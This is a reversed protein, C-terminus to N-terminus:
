RSLLDAMSHRSLEEELVAQVRSLEGHISCAGAHSRYDCVAGSRLCHIVSFEEDVAAIIDYLTIEELPKGLLCGGGAGRRILVLGAKELKKLIKYAFQKPVLELECIDQITLLEKDKLARIIRVAYDSERTILM